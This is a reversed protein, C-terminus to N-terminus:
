KVVGATYQVCEAHRAKGSGITAVQTCTWEVRKLVLVCNPNKECEADRRVGGYIIAGFAALVILVICLPSNDLIHDILRM